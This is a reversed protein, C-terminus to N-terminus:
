KMGATKRWRTMYFTPLKVRSQRAFSGMKFARQDLYVTHRIKMLYFLTQHFYFM